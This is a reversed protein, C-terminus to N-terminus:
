PPGILICIRDGPQASHLDLNITTCKELGGRDEITKGEFIDRNQERKLCYKGKSTYLIVYM